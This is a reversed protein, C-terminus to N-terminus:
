NTPYYTILESFDQDKNETIFKGFLERIQPHPRGTTGLVRQQYVTRWARINGTLVVTTKTSIPLVERAMEASCGFKILSKYALEAFKMAILWLITKIDWKKFWCPKVFSINNKYNCYRTSEQSPSLFRHRLICRATGIDTTVKLTLNTHELVSEHKMRVLKKLFNIPEGSSKGESQYCNRAAIESINIPTYAIVETSQDILKM